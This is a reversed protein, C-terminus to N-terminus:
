IEKYMLTEREDSVEQEQRIRCLRGGYVNYANNIPYIRPTTTYEINPMINFAIIYIFDHVLIARFAPLCQQYNVV